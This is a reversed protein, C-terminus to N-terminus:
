KELEALIVKAIRLGEEMDVNALYTSLEQRMNILNEPMEFTELEAMAEDATNLDFDDMAECIRNLVDKIEDYSVAKTEEAKPAYAKLKDKYSRYLELHASSKERIAEVEGAKGHM